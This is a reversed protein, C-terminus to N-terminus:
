ARGETETRVMCDTEIRCFLSPSLDCIYTCDAAAAAAKVFHRCIETIIREEPVELGVGLGV